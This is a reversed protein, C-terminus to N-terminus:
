IYYEKLPAFGNFGISAYTTTYAGAALIEVPDGVALAKPLEYGTREYLVDAGDCTPGAIVVRGSEGGDRPTRFRYQIAEDQTEALGGFKGVDLYVWRESAGYDKEAVLVVEAALVGADGVIARGPEIIADPLDNGFERTMAAQIGQAIDELAPIPKRYRIPFGGGMNIMRLELGRARLDSFVMATKAIAVDWQKPDCQQSGVHFSIGAPELGRDGAELMLDAAMRLSCGFKRSLPWDAGANDLAIRCYVRAGPASEALKRLEAQSDFAYLSV